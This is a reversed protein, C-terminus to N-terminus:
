INTFTKPLIFTVPTVWTQNRPEGNLGIAPHFRPLSMVVRMAEDLLLPSPSRLIRAKSVYGNEDLVFEVIVKGQVSDRLAEQPYVLHDNIWKQMGEGQFINTDDGPFRSNSLYDTYEVLINGNSVLSDWERKEQQGKETKLYEEREKIEKKAIAVRKATEIDIEQDQPTTSHSNTPALYVVKERVNMGPFYIITDEKSTPQRISAYEQNVTLPNSGSTAEETPKGRNSACSVLLWWISLIIIGKSKM